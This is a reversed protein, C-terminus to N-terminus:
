DKRLHQLVPCANRHWHGTQILRMAEAKTMAGTYLTETNSVNIWKVAWEKGYGKSPAKM